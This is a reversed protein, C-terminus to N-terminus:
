KLCWIVHLLIAMMKTRYRDRWSTVMVRVNWPPSSSFAAMFFWLTPYRGLFFVHEIKDTGDKAWSLPLNTSYGLTWVLTGLIEGTPNSSFHSSSSISTFHPLFPTFTVFIMNGYNGLTKKSRWKPPCARNESLTAWNAPPGAPTEATTASRECPLGHQASNPVM